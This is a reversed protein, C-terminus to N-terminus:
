EGGHRPGNRAGRTTFSNGLFAHSDGSEPMYSTRQMGCVKPRNMLVLPPSRKAQEAARAAARAADERAAQERRQDGTGGDGGGLLAATISSILFSLSSM